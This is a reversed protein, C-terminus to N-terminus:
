ADLWVNEYSQNVYIDTLLFTKNTVRPYYTYRYADYNLVISAFSSLLAKDAEKVLQKRADVNLETQQKAYAADAAPVVIRSWNRPASSVGLDGMVADPDDLAPAATWIFVDFNTSNAADTIAAGDLSNPKPKFGLKTLQDVMFVGTPEFLTRYLLNVELGPAVGAASLLAKAQALDGKPAYGPISALESASLGWAGQPHMYGGVAAGDGGGMIDIAAGRDLGISLAQRVRPDSFPAKKTNMFIHNRQNSATIKVTIKSGLRSKIDPLEEPQALYLDIKGAYYNELLTKRDKLIPLELGDLYPLDKNFYAPNKALSIVSGPTYKTLKFPGTGVPDKKLNGDTVLQSKRGIAVYPVTQNLLFSASPAKLKVTITTADTARVSDVTSLIAQRSSSQGAPPSMMWQYNAVVDDATLPSGDHFLVGPRLKFVYTTADPTEPLTTALDALMGGEKAPDVKLLGNYVPQVAQVVTTSIESHLDFSNPDGTLARTLVGGRKPQATTAALGGPSTSSASTTAATKSGSDGCGVLLLAAAGASGTM